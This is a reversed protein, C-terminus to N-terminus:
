KIRRQKHYLAQLIKTACTNLQGYMRFFVSLGTSKTLYHLFTTNACQKSKRNETTKTTGCEDHCCTAALICYKGICIFLNQPVHASCTKFLPMGGRGAFMYCKNSFERWFQNKKYLEIRILRCRNKSFRYETCLYNKSAILSIM